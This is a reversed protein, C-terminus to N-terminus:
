DAFLISTDFQHVPEARTVVDLIGYNMAIDDVPKAIFDRLDRYKM